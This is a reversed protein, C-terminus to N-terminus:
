DSSLMLRLRGGAGWVQCQWAACRQSIQNSYTAGLTGLPVGNSLQIQNEGTNVTAHLGASVLILNKYEAHYYGLLLPFQGELHAQKLLQNVQKLITSMQPLRQRQNTLHDRLLGNFIARLLLAALVGNEGARTVDLCYFALDNPSLAAVDLVLGPHEAMTLQRYNIRCHALVQQVPPQLQKLLKAAQAPDQCLASWDQILDNGEMAQSTFLHPYLCALLAERLRNLETLPKLLVDEVGLRLVQAVDSMNDTASIVLVPIKNGQLRLNEVFEIGGMEPMALDCLILDPSVEEVASLAELGNEAESTTAGLTKLYGVLVSRFVAEDEVILIHKSTLPKDM